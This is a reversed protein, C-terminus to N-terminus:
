CRRGSRVGRVGHGPVQSIGTLALMGACGILYCLAFRRRRLAPMGRASEELRRRLDGRFPAAPVPRDREIWCRHEGTGGARGSHCRGRHRRRPSEDRSCRRIPALARARRYTAGLRGAAGLGRGRHVRPRRHRRARGRAGSAAGPRAAQRERAVGLLALVLGLGLVLGPIGAEAALEIYFSHADRVSRDSLAGRLWAFEYTGAGTGM